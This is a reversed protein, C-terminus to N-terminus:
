NCGDKKGEETEFTVKNGEEIDNMLGNAHVFVDKGRVNENVEVMIEGDSFSSVVAKGLPIGLQAAVGEALAPNANGTFVMLNEHVM